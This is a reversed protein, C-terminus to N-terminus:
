LPLIGRKALEGANKVRGRGEGLMTTGAHRVRPLATFKTSRCCVSLGALGACRLFCHLIDSLSSSAKFVSKELCCNEFSCTALLTHSSAAVAPEPRPLWRLVRLLNHLLVIVRLSTKKILDRHTRKAQM